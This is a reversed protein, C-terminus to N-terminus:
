RPVAPLAQKSFEEANQSLSDSRLYAGMREGVVLTRLAGHDRLLLAPGGALLSLREDVVAV